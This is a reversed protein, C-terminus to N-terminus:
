EKGGKIMSQAWRWIFNNFIDNRDVSRLRWSEGEPSTVRIEHEDLQEAKWTPAVQESALLPYSNRYVPVLHEPVEDCVITPSEAWISRGNCSLLDALENERVWAVPEGLQAQEAELAKRLEGIFHATSITNKWLPADWQEIVQQAAQQLTTM